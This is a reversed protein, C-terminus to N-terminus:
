LLIVIISELMGGAIMPACIQACKGLYDSLESETRWIRRGRACSCISSVASVACISMFVSVSLFFVGGAVAFLPLTWILKYGLSGLVCSWGLGYCGGLMVICMVQVPLSVPWCGCVSSMLCLALRWWIIRFFIGFVGLEGGAGLFCFALFEQSEDCFDGCSFFGALIFSMVFFSAALVSNISVPLQLSLRKM